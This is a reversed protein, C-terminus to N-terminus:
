QTKNCRNQVDLDAGCLDLEDISSSPREQQWVCVACYLTCYAVAARAAVGGVCVGPAIHRANLSAGGGWGWERRLLANLSPREQQGRMWGWCRGM